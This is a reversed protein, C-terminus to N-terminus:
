FKIGGLVDNQSCIRADAALSIDIEQRLRQGVADWTYRERVTEYGCAAIRRRAGPDDLLYTLCDCIGDTDGPEHLMGTSRHSIYDPMAGCKPAVVALSYAMAEIFALGFPEHCTPLCFISAQKYFSPMELPSVRGAITCNNASINPSCGVIILRANAHRYPLKNFADLLKAGGKREWEVGVFLITKNDETAPHAMPPIASFNCGAGINVVKQEPLHYLESLSRQVHKSWVFVRCTAEFSHREQALWRGSPLYKLPFAEFYLNSLVTADTYIFTPVDCTASCWLSQSQMIFCTDSIEAVIANRVLHTLATFTDPLLWFYFEICARLNGLNHVVESFNCVITKVILFLFILFHTRLLDVVDIVQVELCPFYKKLITDLQINVGKFSGSKIFIIKRRISDAAKPQQEDMPNKGEAPAM